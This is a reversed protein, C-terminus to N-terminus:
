NLWRRAFFSLLAKNTEIGESPQIVHVLHLLYAILLQREHGAIKALSAYNQFDPDSLLREIKPFLKGAPLKEVLVGSQIVYHFWDWGPIGILDGREWDLINWVRSRSSVKINWPALDGHVLAPHFAVSGIGQSLRAFLTEDPRANQLARWVPADQIQILKHRDVWGSLFDALAPWAEPAPSDGSVFSLAFASIEGTDFSARVVPLGSVGHPASNLFSVEHRILQRACEGIGAKVVLAPRRKEDFLLILFRRGQARPNGALIAMAPFSGSPIDVLSALFQAFPEKGALPLSIKELPVPLHLQFATRLTSKAWRASQTQAPYLSLADAALSPSLPLFLFPSGSKKLARLSLTFDAPSKSRFLDTWSIAPTEAM